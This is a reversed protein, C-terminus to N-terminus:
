LRARPVDGQKCMNYPFILFYCTPTLLNEPHSLSLNAVRRIPNSCFEPSGRITNFLFPIDSGRGRRGEGRMGGGPYLKDFNQCGKTKEGVWIWGVRIQKDGWLNLILSDTFLHLLSHNLRCNQSVFNVSIRLM